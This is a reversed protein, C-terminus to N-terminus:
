GTELQNSTGVSMHLHLADQLQKISASSRRTLQINTRFDAKNISYFAASRNKGQFFQPVIREVLQQMKGIIFYIARLPDYTSICCIRYTVRVPIIKQKQCFQEIRVMRSRRNRQENRQKKM